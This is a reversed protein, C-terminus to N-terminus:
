KNQWTGDESCIVERGVEDKIISGVGHRVNGYICFAGTDANGVSSKITSIIDGPPSIMNVSLNDEKKNNKM